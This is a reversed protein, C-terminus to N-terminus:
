PTYPTFEARTITLEVPGGSGGPEHTLVVEKVQALGPMAPLPVEFEAERGSTAVFRTFIEKPILGAADQPVSVPKLAITVPDM